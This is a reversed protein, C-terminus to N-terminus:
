CLTGQLPINVPDIGDSGTAPSNGIELGALHIHRGAQIVDDLATYLVPRDRDRGVSKSDEWISILSIDMSQQFNLLMRKASKPKEKM